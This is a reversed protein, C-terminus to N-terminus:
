RRGSTTAVNTWPMAHHVGNHMTIAEGGAAPAVFARIARQM